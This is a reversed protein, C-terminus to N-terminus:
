IRDAETQWAQLLDLYRDSNRRQVPIKLMEAEVDTSYSNEIASTNSKM